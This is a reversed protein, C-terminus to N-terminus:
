PRDRTPLESVVAGVEGTDWRLTVAAPPEVERRVMALAIGESDPPEAVSTLNGVVKDALVVAAGRPPLQEESTFRVRRLFRNVHGRTDIRCV